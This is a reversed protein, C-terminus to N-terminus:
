RLLKRVQTSVYMALLLKVLDPIIYPVVCTMLAAFFGYETGRAGLVIVFWITGVLYCALLGAILFVIRLARKRTILPEGLMYILGTFLFGVIYGGTPGLIHGVGGSFGSFVPVGVIGLLIYLGVAATGLRGGLIMVACFVAFTQMTFPVVYPITIWSCLTIIVAMLAIMVARFAPSNKKM